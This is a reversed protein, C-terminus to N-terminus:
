RGPDIDLTRRGCSLGYKSKKTREQSNPTFRLRGFDARLLPANAVHATVTQNFDLHDGVKDLAPGRPSNNEGAIQLDSPEIVQVRQIELPVELRNWVQLEGLRWGDARPEGLSFNVIPELRADDETWRWGQRVFTSISIGLTTASIALVVLSISPGIWPKSLLERIRVVIPKRITDQAENPEAENSEKDNPESLEGM